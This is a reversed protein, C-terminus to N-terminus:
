VDYKKLLSHTPVVRGNKIGRLGDSTIEGIVVAVKEGARIRYLKVVTDAGPFESIVGNAWHICNLINGSYSENGSTAILTKM